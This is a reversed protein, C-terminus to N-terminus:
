IKAQVAFVVLEFIFNFYGFFRKMRSGMPGSQSM